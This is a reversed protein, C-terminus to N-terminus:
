YNGPHGNVAHDLPSRRMLTSSADTIARGMVAKPSLTNPNEARNLASSTNVAAPGAEDFIQSCCEELTAAESRSGVEAPDEVDLDGEEGAETCFIFHLILFFLKM